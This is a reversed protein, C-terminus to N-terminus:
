PFRYGELRIEVSSRGNYTNIKPSYLITVTMRKGRGITLAAGKGYAQELDAM